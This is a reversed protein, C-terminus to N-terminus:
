FNNGHMLNGNDLINRDRAPLKWLYSTIFVLPRFKMYQHKVHIEMTLTVQYFKNLIFWAM